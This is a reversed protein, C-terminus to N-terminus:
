DLGQKESGREPLRKTLEATYGALDDEIAGTPGTYAHDCAALDRGGHTECKGTIRKEDM